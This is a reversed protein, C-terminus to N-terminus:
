ITPSPILRNAGGDGDVIPPGIGILVPYPSWDRDVSTHYEIWLTSLTPPGIGVLGLYNMSYPSWDRILIPYM